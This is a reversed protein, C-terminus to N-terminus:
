NKCKDSDQRSFGKICCQTIHRGHKTKNLTMFECLECRYVKSTILNEVEPEFRHKFLYHADLNSKQYCSRECYQCDYFKVNTHRRSHLIFNGKNNTSYNCYMCHLSKTSKQHKNKHKSLKHSALNHCNITRYDCYKCSHIKNSILDEAGPIDKHNNLFHSALHSKQTFKLECFTCAFPKKPKVQPTSVASEEEEPDKKYSVDFEFM